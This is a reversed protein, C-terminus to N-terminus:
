GNSWKISVKTNKKKAKEMLTLFKRTEQNDDEDETDTTEEDPDGLRVSRWDSTKSGFQNKKVAIRKLNKKEAKNM